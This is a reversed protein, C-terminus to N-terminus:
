GALARDALARDADVLGPLLRLHVITGDGVPRLDVVRCVRPPTKTALWSL